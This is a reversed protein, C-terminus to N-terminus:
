GAYDRELREKVRFCAARPHKWCGTDKKGPSSRRIKGKQEGGEVRRRPCVAERRCPKLAEDDSSPAEPGFMSVAITSSIVSRIRGGAIGLNHSGPLMASGDFIRADNVALECAHDDSSKM